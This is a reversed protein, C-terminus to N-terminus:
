WDEEPPRREPATAQAHRKVGEKEEDRLADLIRKAEEESIQGPAKQPQPKKQDGQSQPQQQPQKSEKKSSDDQQQDQKKQQQEKLLQLALELNKKADRDDPRARLAQVYADVAEQFRGMRVLANGRNFTAEQGLRPQKAGQAKLYEELAKDLEGKRYLVNGINYHLEPAEPRSVQADTYLKLADDYQKRDYLRNGENNKSAAPDAHAEGMAGSSLALLTAALFAGTRKM